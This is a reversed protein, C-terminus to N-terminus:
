YQEDQEGQPWLSKYQPLPYFSITKVPAQMYKM